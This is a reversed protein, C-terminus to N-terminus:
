PFTRGVESPYSWGNWFESTVEIPLGLQNRERLDDLKRRRPGQIRELLSGWNAYSGGGSVSLLYNKETALASQLAECAKKTEGAQAYSFALFYRSPYFEKNAKISALFSEAAEKYYRDWYYRRGRIFFWDALTENPTEQVVANTPEQTAPTDESDGLFGIDLIGGCRCKGELSKVKRAKDLLLQKVEHSTLHKYKPHSWVLAAAGAVFPAAFSTGPAALYKNDGPVTSLIDTDNGEGWGGPAAIDVTNQGFNSFPALGRESNMTVGPGVAVVSIVCGKSGEFTFCSPYHPNEDNNNGKDNGASCVIIVDYKMLIKRFANEMRLPPQTTKVGYSYNIIKAGKEVAYTLGYTMANDNDLKESGSYVRAPLLKINWAVGAIGIGNNGKAGIIGAVRTGHSYNSMEEDSKDKDKPSPGIYAEPTPYDKDELFDKGELANSVPDVLINDRLDEHQRDITTDLIAVIISSSQVRTWARPARIETLGWQEKFRPDNPFSSQLDKKGGPRPEPVLQRPPVPKLEPTPEQPKMTSDNPETFEIVANNKTRLDDLIDKTIPKDQPWRFVISELTKNESVFEFALQKGIELAEARKGTRYGIVIERSKVAQYRKLDDIVKVPLAYKALQDQLKKNKMESESLAGSIKAKEANAVKLDGQLATVQMMLEGVVKADPKDKLLVRLNETELKLRSIDQNKAEIEAKLNGLKTEQSKLAENLKNITDLSKAQEEIRRNVEERQKELEALHRTQSDGMAQLQTRMSYVFYGLGATIVLLLILFGALLYLTKGSTTM